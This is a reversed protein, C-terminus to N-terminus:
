HGGAGPPPLPAEFPPANTLPQPTNAGNGGFTGNGQNNGGFGSYNANNTYVNAPGGNGAITVVVNPQITVTGAALDISRGSSLTTNAIFNLQGNSGPAYLRILSDASMTTHGVNLQGNSGLARSRIVDASLTTRNDSNSTPGFNVRGGDADHRVDITGKTAAVRGNVNVDTNAGTALITIKGGPGTTPAADLLALLQSSNSVNVAVTRPGGAPGPPTGVRGSRLTINGGQASRRRPPTPNPSGAPAPDASSVEIRSTVSVINQTSALTV